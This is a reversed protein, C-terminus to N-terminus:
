DSCLGFACVDPVEVQVFVLLMEDETGEGWGVDIPPSNPNLPNAESNDYFAVVQLRDDVDFPIPEVYTYSSQWNFDWDDILIMPTKEGTPSIKDMRIERGLLHMHPLVATIELPFILDALLRGLSGMDTSGLITSFDFHARVEHRPAGAPIVFSTNLAPVMLANRPTPEESFHIGIRTSDPEM